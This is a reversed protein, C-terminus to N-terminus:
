PRGGKSPSIVRQDILLVDGFRMAILAVCGRALRGSVPSLDEADRLDVSEVQGRPCAELEVRITDQLAKITVAGAAALAEARCLARNLVPAAERDQPALRVNRSSLALGDKDRVTPVGTIEVPIALDRVMRRIVLLQQYDKEGFYARDPQVLNFLRAVVTAVGRFHGPRLRGMLMRSLRTTEVVTQDGPPYIDTVGPTFVADVGEDRLLALDRELDRPYRDLDENPGFQAPNVFISVVVRACDARARRVLTLHGEHLYGMTPVLGIAAQGRWPALHARLAARTQLVEM